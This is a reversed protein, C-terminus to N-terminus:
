RNLWLRREVDGHGARGFSPFGRIFHLGALNSGSVASVTSAAAAQPVCIALVVLAPSLGIV